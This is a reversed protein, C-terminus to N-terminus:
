VESKKIKKGDTIRFIFRAFKKYKKEQDKIKYTDTYFEDYAMPKNDIFYGSEAKVLGNHMNAIMKVVHLGLGTGSIGFKDFRTFRDFVDHLKDHPIGIGENFISFEFEENTMTLCCQITTNASGYKIANNILNSFAIKMLNEDCYISWEGTMETKINMGKKHLLPAYDEIVPTLINKNVDVAKKCCQLEGNECKCSIIYNRIMDHLLKLSCLSSLLMENRREVGISASLNEDVLASVNMVIPGLTKRCEHAFFSMIWNLHKNLNYTETNDRIIEVVHSIKGDKEKMPLAIVDCYHENGENDYNVHMFKVPRKIRFARRVPCSSEDCPVVSRHSVRYCHEGIIQDRPVDLAQLYASNCSVIKLRRDVVAVGEDMTELILTGYNRQNGAATVRLWELLQNRIFYWKNGIRSAPIEGNKALKSVTPKSLKLIKSADALDLIEDEFDTQIEEKKIFPIDGRSVITRSLANKLALKIEKMDLPKIAYFFIGQERVRTATEISDDASTVIIPLFRNMKKIIPILEYGRNNWAEVALILVDIQENKIKELMRSTQEVCEIKYGEKSLDEILHHIAEKDVDMVVIRAHVRRSKRTKIDM